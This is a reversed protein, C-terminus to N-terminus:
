LYCLVSQHNPCPLPLYTFHKKLKFLNFLRFYCTVEILSISILIFVQNLRYLFELKKIIKVFKFSADMANRAKYCRVEDVPFFEIACVEKWHKGNYINGPFQDRKLQFYYKLQYFFQYFLLPKASIIKKKLHSHNKIM